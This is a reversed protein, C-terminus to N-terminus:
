LLRKVADLGADSVVVFRYRADAWSAAALAGRQVFEASGTGPIAFEGARGIYCHFEAGDRVFCIELVDHGGVSLTRCGTKELAAFDVPLGAELKAGPASLQAALAQVAPGHSGHHGHLVDDMAFATLADATARRHSWMAGAAVFIAVSAAIAFWTPWARRSTPATAQETARGGALIADRLGPPPATDRLKAAVAAAHAQERALWEGLAPDNKAQALAAAFGPDSADRGNSRYANLLFKAENNSM